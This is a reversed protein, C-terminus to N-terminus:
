HFADVGVVVWGRRSLLNAAAGNGCGVDFVRRDVQNNELQCVLEGLIPLLYDHACTLEANEWRYGSITEITKM